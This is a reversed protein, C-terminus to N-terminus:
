NPLQRKPMAKLFNQCVAVIVEIARIGSCGEEGTGPLLDPSLPEEEEKYRNRQGEAAKRASGDGFGEGTTHSKTLLQQQKQHESAKYDSVSRVITAAATGDGGSEGTRHKAEELEKLVKADTRPPKPPPILHTQYGTFDMPQSSSTVPPLQSQRRGSVGSVSSLSASPKNDGIYIGQEAATSQARKAWPTTSNIQPMQTRRQKVPACFCILEPLRSQWLCQWLRVGSELRYHGKIEDERVIGFLPALLYVFLQVSSVSYTLQRVNPMGGGGGCPANNEHTPTTKTRATKTRACTKPFVARVFVAQDTNENCEAAADIILWHLIYLSKVLSGSMPVDEEEACRETLLAACCQVIHPFAARVLSWRSVSGIADSLSPSIGHLINQVIVREFTMCSADQLKSVRAGLFPHTQRWLFSQIPLPIPESETDEDAAGRSSCFSEGTVIASLPMMLLQVTGHSQHQLYRVHM